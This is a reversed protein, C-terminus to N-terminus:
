AINYGSAGDTSFVFEYLQARSDKEFRRCIDDNVSSSKIEPSGFYQPMVGHSIRPFTSLVVWLILDITQVCLV